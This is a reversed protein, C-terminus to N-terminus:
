FPRDMGTLIYSIRWTDETKELQFRYFGTTVLSAVSSVAVLNLYAVVTARSDTLEDVVINTVAHRRQDTQSEMIEALWEVVAVKGRIEELPSGSITLGFVADDTLLDRLADLSREDYAYSYRVATGRIAYHDNLQALTLNAPRPGQPHLFGGAKAWVPTCDHLSASLENDTM